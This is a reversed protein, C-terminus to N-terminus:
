TRLMGVVGTVLMQVALAALIIGGARNMVEVGSPGLRGALWEARSFIAYALLAVLGAGLSLLLLGPLDYFEASSAVLFAISGGGYSLPFVIPVLALSRWDKGRSAEPDIGAFFNGNVAPLSCVLLIVAGTTMLGPVSIGLSRLGLVGLWIILLLMLLYLAAARKAMRVKTEADLDLSLKLYPAVAAAPNFLVALAVAFAVGQQLDM